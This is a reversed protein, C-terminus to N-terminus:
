ARGGDSPTRQELSIVSDCRRSDERDNTAVIVMGHARQERIIDDVMTAGDVDLNSTPEDLLLVPPRHILAFAYKLRQKMGSSYTRVLDNKRDILRVRDLLTDLRDNPIRLGRVRRVLDLNEWGTFEDYLQLYPAVFGILSFIDSPKVESSNHKYLITGATPSLVGALMKMLTSKGSGNPGTIALSHRSTVTFHLDSFVTRRNFTKKLGSASLFIEDM